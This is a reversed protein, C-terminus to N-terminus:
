KAKLPIGLKRYVEEKDILDDFSALDLLKDTSVMPNIKNEVLIEKDIYSFFGQLYNKFFIKRATNDATEQGETTGGLQHNYQGTFFSDSYGTILVLQAIVNEYQTKSTTALQNGLTSIDDEKDMFVASAKNNKVEDLMETIQKSINNKTDNSANDRLGNLKFILAKELLISDSNTNIINSLDMSLKKLTTIIQQSDVKLDIIKSTLATFTQNNDNINTIAVAKNGKFYMKCKLSGTTFLNYLTKSLLNQNIVNEGDVASYNLEEFLDKNSLNVLVDDIMKNIMSNFIVTDYSTNSFSWSVTGETVPTNRFGFLSM